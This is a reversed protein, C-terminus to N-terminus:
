LLFQQCNSPPDPTAALAYWVAAGADEYFWRKAKRTTLAEFGLRLQETSCGTEAQSAQSTQSASLLMDDPIPRAHDNPWYLRLSSLDPYSLAGNLCLTNRFYDHLSTPSTKELVCLMRDVFFGSTGETRGSSTLVCMPVWRLHDISRGAFCSHDIMALSVQRAATNLIPELTSVDFISEDPLVWGAKTGHLLVILLLQAPARDLERRLTEVLTKQSEDLECAKSTQNWLIVTRWNRERLIEAYQRIQPAFPNSDSWGDETADGILIATRLGLVATLWFWTWM